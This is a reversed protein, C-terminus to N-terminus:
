APSGIREQHLTEFFIRTAVFYVEADTQIVVFVANDRLQLRNGFRFRTQVGLRVAGRQIQRHFPQVGIAVRNRRQQKACIM